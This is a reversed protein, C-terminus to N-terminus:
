IFGIFMGWKCGTWRQNRFTRNLSFCNYVSCTSQKIMHNWLFPDDLDSVLAYHHHLLCGSNHHCYEWFEVSLPSWLYFEFGATAGKRLINCCFLSLSSGIWAASYRRMLHRMPNKFFPLFTLQGFMELFSKSLGSKELNQLIGCGSFTKKKLKAEFRSKM